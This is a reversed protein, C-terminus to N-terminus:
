GKVKPHIGRRPVVDVVDTPAKLGGGKKSIAHETDAAEYLEVHRDNPNPGIKIRHLCNIHDACGYITYPGSPMLRTHRVCKMAYAGLVAKKDKILNGSTVITFEENLTWKHGGGRKGL